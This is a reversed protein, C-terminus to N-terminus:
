KGLGFTGAEVDMRQGFFAALKTILDTDDARLLLLFTTTKSVLEAICTPECAYAPVRIDGELWCRGIVRHQLNM